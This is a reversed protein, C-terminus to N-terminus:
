GHGAQVLDRVILDPGLFTDKAFSASVRWLKRAGASSGLTKFPRAMAGSNPGCNSPKSFCGALCFCSFYLTWSIIPCQKSPTCASYRVDDADRSCMHLAFSERINPFVTSSRVCLLPSHM